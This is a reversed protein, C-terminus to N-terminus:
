SFTAIVINVAGGYGKLVARRGSSEIKEQILSCPLSTDVVVTGRELSVDVNDVGKLGSLSSQIANVCKQCTM